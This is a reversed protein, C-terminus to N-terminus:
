YYDSQPKVRGVESEPIGFGPFDKLLMSVFVTQEYFVAQNRLQPGFFVSKKQNFYSFRLVWRHLDHELIAYLTDLNFVTNNRKENNLINVSNLLDNSFSVYNPHSEEYREIQDAKSTSGLKLNVYKHLDLDFEWKFLISDQMINIYNRRWTVGAKLLKLEGLFLPKYGGLKLYIDLDNTGSKEYRILYKYEDSVGIEFFHYKKNKILQYYGPSFGNIIDFNLESRVTLPSWLYNEKIEYPWKRLDRSTFVSIRSLPYFDSVASMKINHEEQDEFTPDSYKQNYRKKYMYDGQAYLFSPGIRLTDLTYLYQYTHREADETLSDSSTAFAEPPEKYFRTIAGAGIGPIISIYRIPTFIFSFYDDAKANFYTQFDKGDNYTNIVDGQFVIVNWLGGFFSGSPNILLSNRKFSISPAMFYIPKYKSELIESQEYWRKQRLIKLSFHNDNWDESYQIQWSLTPKKRNGTFEEETDLKFMELTRQPEFRVGFEQEFDQHNYDEYNVMLISTSDEKSSKKRDYKISGRLKWWDDTKEGYTGDELLVQNTVYPKTLEDYKRAFRKNKYDALGIEIDYNLSTRDKKLFAGTYVGTKQYWDYMFKVTNPAIILNPMGIYFTNQLFHGHTKNIGYQTLIGTGVDTQFLFPWYFIPTSGAYYVLHLAAIQNDEYMWIKKAKFHFHPMDADCTTLYAMNAIFTEDSVRQITEGIYYIPEFYADAKYVVGQGTQNDYIFKDGKITQTKDQLSINKEGFVEGTKPNIKVIEAHLILDGIKLIIGGELIMIGESTEKYNIYEAESARIIEVTSKNKKQQAILFNTQILFIFLFFIYIKIRKRNTRM